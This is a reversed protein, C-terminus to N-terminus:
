YSRRGENQKARERKFEPYPLQSLDKTGGGAPDGSGGAGGGQSDPWWHRATEKQEVLWEAVSKPTKGDKGFLVGGAEDKIVLMDREQDFSFAREARLQVDAVAEPKVSADKAASLVDARLVTQRLKSELAEARSNSDTFKKEIQELQNAHDARLADTRQEYWEDYKGESLLKGQEDKSFREQIALLAKIGDDGGLTEFHGNLTDFKTKLETKETKLATNTNKLGETATEVAAAILTKVDDGGDGGTGGDGGGGKGGDGGEGGGDGGGGEGEFRAPRPLIDSAILSWRFDDM